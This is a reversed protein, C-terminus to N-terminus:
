TQLSFYKSEIKFFVAGFQGAAKYFQARKATQLDQMFEDIWPEIHATYFKKQQEFGVADDGADSILSSMVACLLGAHDETEFRNSDRQFGLHQLSTRLEALPQENLFGSLYVSGYPLVEGRGVGIFLANFESELLNPHQLASASVLGLQSLAVSFEGQEQSNDNNQSFGRIQQLLESSPLALLLQSLLAYINTRAARDSLLIPNPTTKRIEVSGVQM